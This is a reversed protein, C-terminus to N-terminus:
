VGERREEKPSVAARVDGEDLSGERREKIRGEARKRPSRAMASKIGVTHVPLTDWEHQRWKRHAARWRQEGSYSARPGQEEEEDGDM